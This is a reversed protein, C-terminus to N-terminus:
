SPWRPAPTRVRALCCRSRAKRTRQSPLRGPGAGGITTNSGGPYREIRVVHTAHTGTDHVTVRAPPGTDREVRVSPPRPPRRRQRLRWIVLAITATAFVIAVLLIILTLPSPAPPTA